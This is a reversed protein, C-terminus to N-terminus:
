SSFWESVHWSVRELIRCNLLFLFKLFVQLLWWSTWRHNHISSLLRWKSSQKWGWDLFFVIYWFYLFLQFILCRLLTLSAEELTYNQHWFARWIGCLHDQLYDLKDVLYFTLKAKVRVFITKCHHVFHKSDLRCLSCLSGQCCGNQGDNYINTLWVKYTNLWVTQSIKIRKM